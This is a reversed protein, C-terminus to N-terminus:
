GNRYNDLSQQHKLDKLIRSRAWRIVGVPHIASENLMEAEKKEAKKGISHGVVCIQIISASPIILIRGNEMARRFPTMLFHLFRSIRGLHKPSPDTFALALPTSMAVGNSTRWHPSWYARENARWWGIM